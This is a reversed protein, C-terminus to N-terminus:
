LKLKIRKAKDTGTKANLVKTAIANRNQEAADRSAPTARENRFMFGDLIRNPFAPFSIRAQSPRPGESTLPYM